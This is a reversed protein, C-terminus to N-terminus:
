PSALAPVTTAAPAIQRVRTRLVPVCSGCETGCRLEGQLAALREAPTGSLRALAADIQPETVDLCSCVQKGRAVV